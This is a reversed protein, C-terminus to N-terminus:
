FESGSNQYVVTNNKSINIFIGGEDKLQESEEGTIIKKTGDSLELVVEKQIKDLSHESM